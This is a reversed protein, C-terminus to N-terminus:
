PLKTWTSWYSYYRTYTGPGGTGPALYKARLDGPFPTDTSFDDALINSGAAFTVSTFNFCYQFAYNGISTVSNPITVSTLGTCDLFANAGISNVSDPITVSTLGSCGLFANNGISTVSDPITYSGNEGAPYQILTTKAKNFLVGNASSYNTNGAAVSISTLGSCFSFAGNGITTVSNPITVSTLNNCNVFASDGISSVSDPISVSTLSNCYAFVYDGISSVSDPITISTLSNCNEFAYDGISNVSDPITISTLSNCYAFAYDGITELSSPLIIGKINDQYYIINMDNGSPLGAGSISNGTATCASLDLIVYKGTVASNIAGWVDSINVPALTVTAPDDATNGPLLALYASLDTYPVVAPNLPVEATPDSTISESNGTSSVTVTITKGVDGVTPVYTATNTGVSDDGAKWQYFLDGSQNTLDDVNATLTQGAQATGTITVTGALAPANYAQVQLGLRESETKGTETVSVYYAAAALDSGSSSLTLTPATFAATVNTLATGGSAANYVKWTGTNVSTLTFEVSKQAAATKVATLTEATPKASQVPLNDGPTEKGGTDGAPNECSALVLMGVALLATILSLPIRIKKM